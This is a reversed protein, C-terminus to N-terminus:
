PPAEPPPDYAAAGRAAIIEMAREIPIRRRGGEPTTGRLTVAQAALFDRLEGAPDTQLHPGPFASPPRDPGLRGIAHYFLWTGAMTLVLFAATGLSVLLVWGSWLNQRERVEDLRIDREPAMIRIWAARWAAM